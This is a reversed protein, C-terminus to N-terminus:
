RTPRAASAPSRTAASRPERRHQHYCNTWVWGAKIARGVRFARSGDRTWVGAGLGYLTDNAIEIADAEDRLHDRGAGPRLDGGPVGADQQAGQARDAPLLLRRRVRRRDRGAARDAGPSRRGPRHGRLALQQASVQPGIMTETDLPNGQRIKAIRALARAMFDEYIDQQILARSPYTCVEGKNFAYLVLGEVAKDLFDDSAAMVDRFFINPPKGGLELTVPILNQAAYQMILRGTVTEGTFAVKAIRPNTM